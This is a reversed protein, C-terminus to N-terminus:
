ASGGGLKGELLKGAGAGLQQLCKVVAKSSSTLVTVREDEVIM